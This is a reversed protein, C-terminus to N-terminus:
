FGFMMVRGDIDIRAANQFKDTIQLGLFSANVDNVPLYGEAGTQVTARGIYLHWEIDTEFTGPSGPFRMGLAPIENANCTPAAGGVGQGTLCTQGDQSLFRRPDAYAGSGSPTEAADIFLGNIKLIGYIDKLVLWEDRNNFQLSFTCPNGIGSCGGLNALPNGEADANMRFETDLAIGEQGVIQGLQADDLPVFGSALAITTQFLLVGAAMSIVSFRMM